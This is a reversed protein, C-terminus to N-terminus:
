QYKFFGQIKLRTNKNVSPMISPIFAAGPLSALMFLTRILLALTLSNIESVGGLTSFAYTIAVEQVGLGNISIPILTVFYAFAYFGGVMWISLSDGMADLLVWISGFLFAMHALTFLFSLILARPQKVWDAIAQWIRVLVNKVKDLFSPNEEDKVTALFPFLYYPSFGWLSPDQVLRVLAVPVVLAMGLMGVLRDVILSTGSIVGDYGAQMAGALRVVDGGVTSPLFNNAFLGAFTLRFSEKVSFNGERAQMLVYWRGIISFRSGLFIGISLLFRSLGIQRVAEWISEWGQESLLYIILGVALITGLWRIITNIPFKKDSTEM